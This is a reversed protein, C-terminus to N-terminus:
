VTRLNDTALECLLRYQGIDSDAIGVGAMAKAVGGADAERLVSVWLCAAITDDGGRIEQERSGTDSAGAVESWIECSAVGDGTTINDLVDWWRQGAGPDNSVGTVVIAGDIDGSREMRRCVTRSPRIFIGDMVTRTLPTPDNVRALYADSTLVEPTDTIYYTFYQRYGGIGEYRRGFRIGPVSVREILHESQYWHEFTAEDGITCDHWVVLVGTGDQTVTM